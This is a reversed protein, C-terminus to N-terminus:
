LPIKKLLSIEKTDRNNLIFQFVEEGKENCKEPTM